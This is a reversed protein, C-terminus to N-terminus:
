FYGANLIHLTPPSFFIKNLTPCRWSKILFVPAYAERDKPPSISDKASPGILFGGESLRPVLPKQDFINGLFYKSLFYYKFM